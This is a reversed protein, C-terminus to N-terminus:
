IRSQQSPLPLRSPSVEDDLFEDDSVDFEENAEFISHMLTLKHDMTEGLSSLLKSITLVHALELKIEFTQLLYEFLEFYTVNPVNKRIELYLEFVGKKYNFHQPDTRTGYTNSDEQDVYTSQISPDPKIFKPKMLVPYIPDNESQNDIQFYGIKFEVKKDRQSDVLKAKIGQMYM